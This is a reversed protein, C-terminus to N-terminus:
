KQSSFISQIPVFTKSSFSLKMSGM